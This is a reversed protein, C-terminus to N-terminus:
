WYKLTIHLPFGSMGSKRFAIIIIKSGKFYRIETVKNTHSKFYLNLISGFILYPTYNTLYTHTRM